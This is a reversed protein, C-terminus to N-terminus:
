KLLDAITLEKNHYSKYQKLVKILEEFHNDWFQYNDEYTKVNELDKYHSRVFKSPKEYNGNTYQEFDNHYIIYLIEIEPRTNVNNIESIKRQYVKPLIFNEKRSDLIRYIKIPVTFSKNLYLRAFNKGKRVTIVEEQLMDERKFILAGHNLLVDIVARESEGEVIVAILEKNM